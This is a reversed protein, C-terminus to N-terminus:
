LFLNTHPCLEFASKKIRFGKLVYSKEGLDYKNTFVIYADGCFFTDFGFLRREDEDLFPAQWRALTSHKQLACIQVVPM